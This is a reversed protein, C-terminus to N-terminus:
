VHNGGIILDLAEEGSNAFLRPNDTITSLWVRGKEDMLLECDHFCDGIPNLDTLIGWGEVTEEACFSLIQSVILGGFSALFRKTADYLHIGERAFAEEYITLDKKRDESWGSERLAKLTKDNM